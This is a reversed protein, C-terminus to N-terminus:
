SFASAVAEAACCSSATTAPRLDTDHCSHRHAKRVRGVRGTRWGPGGPALRRFDQGVQDGRQEGTAPRHRAVLRQAQQAALEAANLALDLAGELRMLQGAQGGRAPEGRQRVPQDPRDVAVRQRHDRGAGFVVTLLLTGCGSRLLTGCRHGPLAECGSRLLAEGQHRGAAIAAPHQRGIRVDVQQEQGVRREARGPPPRHLEHEVQQPVEPQLDAV